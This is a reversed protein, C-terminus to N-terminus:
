KVEKITCNIESLNYRHTQNSEETDDFDIYSNEIKYTEVIYSDDNILILYQSKKTFMYFTIVVLIITSIFYIISLIIPHKNKLLNDITEISEIFFIITIIAFIFKFVIM